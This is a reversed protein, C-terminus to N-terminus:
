IAVITVARTGAVTLVDDPDSTLVTVQESSTSLITAGLHADAVSVGATNRIAAAVDALTADLANDSIRLRNAFAWKPPTRDWGAEVRVATPTIVRIPTARRMRHAVVQVHSLVRAHKAHGPDALAQVAENDLLVVRSM